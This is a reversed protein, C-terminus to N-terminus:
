GHVAFSIEADATGAEHDITAHIFMPKDEEKVEFNLSELWKRSVTIQTDEKFFRNLEEVTIQAFLKSGEPRGRKAKM